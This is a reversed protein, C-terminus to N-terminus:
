QCSRALDNPTPPYPYAQEWNNASGRSKELYSLSACVNKPLCYGSMLLRSYTFQLDKDGGDALSKIKDLLEAASAQPNLKYFDSMKQSSFTPLIAIYALCDEEPVMEGAPLTTQGRAFLTVVVLSAFMWRKVAFWCLNSNPTAANM